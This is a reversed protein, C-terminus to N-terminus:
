DEERKQRQLTVSSKQGILEDCLPDPRIQIFREVNKQLM